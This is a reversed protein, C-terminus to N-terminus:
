STWQCVNFVYDCFHRTLEDFRSPLRHWLRDSSVVFEIASAKGRSGEGRDNYEVSKLVSRIGGVRCVISRNGDM